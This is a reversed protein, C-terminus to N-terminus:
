QTNNGNMKDVFPSFIVEARSRYLSDDLPFLVSANKLLTITEMHLKNTRENFDQLNGQPQKCIEILTNVNNFFFFFTKQIENYKHPTHYMVNMDNSLQHSLSDLLDYFGTDDVSKIRWAIADNFDSCYREEGNEDIAKNSFIANYWNSSFDQIISNTSLEIIASNVMMDTAAKKYQSSQRLSLGIIVILAVVIIIATIILYKKTTKMDMM